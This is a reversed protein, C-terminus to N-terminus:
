LVTIDKINLQLKEEGNWYNKEISYVIDMKKKAKIDTILHSLNFAIAEISQHNNQKINLRLHNKDNGIVRAYGTDECLNSRFIPRMNQPGFPALQTIKEYLKLNILAIPIEIDYYIAPTLMEKSVKEKVITEFKTKFSYFNEKKISIGAANPHGGYKEILNECKKLAEILNFDKITRASGVLLGKEETFVITPLYNNDVLRAAVIGIVGKHWEEGFVINAYSIAKNDLQILAEQTNKKEIERRESSLMKLNKFYSLAKTEDECVLLEFAEIAHKLRGAANIIPAVSFVLDRVQIRKKIKEFFFSLGVRKKEENINKLGLYALVRNEGIMPVIDACTALAVLDLYSILNKIDLQWFISLSHILKFGIGCGCLEKFPYPCDKQKPNLIAVAEPKEKGVSHHDCVICDIGMKKAYAISNLDKIGCDLIIILQVGLEKASDIGKSSVGYGESFRDPIYVNLNSIFPKLFSFLLTVSTVGDVDYDGYIMVGQKEKKCLDIRRVAKEMDKMLFPDHLNNFSPKFYSKAATNDFIGRQILLTKLVTNISIDKQSLEKKIATPISKKIWRM